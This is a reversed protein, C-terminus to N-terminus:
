KEKGEEGEHFRSSNPFSGTVDSAALQQVSDFVLSIELDPFHVFQGSLAVTHHNGDPGNKHNKHSSLRHCRSISGMQISSVADIPHRKIQSFNGM